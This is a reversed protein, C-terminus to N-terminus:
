IDWFRLRLSVTGTVDAAGAAVGGVAVFYLAGEDIDAIAGTGAAKYVTRSNRGVKPFKYYDHYIHTSHDGPIPGCYDDSRWLIKFRGSNADNLFAEPSVTVLIDTIAPLAGAPRSDWVLMIAYAATTTTTSGNLIGNIQISKLQIKKGVRQTVGTGSAVTNILAISGTTNGEIPSITTDVYGTEKSMTPGMQVFTSRPARLRRRAPSADRRQRKNAQKFTSFTGAAARKM